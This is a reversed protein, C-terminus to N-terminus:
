SYLWRFNTKRKELSTALIHEYLNFSVMFISILYRRWKLAYKWTNEINQVPEKLVKLFEM